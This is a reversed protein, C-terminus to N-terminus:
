GQVIHLHRLAGLVRAECSVPPENDVASCVQWTQDRAQRDFADYVSEGPRTIVSVWNGNHTLMEATTCGPFSVSPRALCLGVDISM